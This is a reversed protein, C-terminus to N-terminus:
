ADIIIDLDEKFDAFGGSIVVFMIPKVIWHPVLLSLLIGIGAPTGTESAAPTDAGELIQAWEEIPKLELDKTLKEALDFATISRPTASLQKLWPDDSELSQVASAYMLYMIM